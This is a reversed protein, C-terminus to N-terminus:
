QCVWGTIDPRTDHCPAVAPPADLSYYVKFDEGSRGNFGIVQIPDRPETDGPAMRYNMSVAAPAYMSRGPVDMSAFTANRVVSRKAARALESDSAYGAAVAVGIQNRFYGNEIVVSGDGRGPELRAQNPYFPSAVGVRLGQIDVDRVVVSKAAYNSFWLGVPADLDSTLVSKDGRVTLRDVILSDTPTATVGHRSPHWVRFDTVEGNWGWVAGAQIAGYAENNTFELVSTSTTDLMVTESEVTPDAGKFAPIRVSGLGGAALGFGVADANAGVNNRIYNHPGRFWMGAGEGGPDATPGGYGSRPAFDGSGEIRLAFNHDFVNFAETGDETAIGAGGTNYVVNDRVLGYHSNHVTVGWKPAEDVANGVLTFQYGNEPTTEPGFNHHFHIAYRGIQNEGVRIVHGDGDFLTNDLPGMKTRGMGRVAVYRIDINARAMFITHGRTGEPNESRIVVNRTLNGAHPLFELAGDPTRAGPHDYELASELTVQNGAVSAIRLKEDRSVFGQRRERERLQRTDPLVVEDGAAWGTPEVDFLLTSQGALPEAILRLFTPLKVAGHMRVTGLGQIGTGIQAPDLDGDTAQDTIIIEATADPAVPEAETGIELIGDDMVTLNVFRMRTSTDTKFSLRGDVEICDLRVDSAADYVVADDTRILVKDDAGPVRNPSWTEPDSWAGSTASTVSPNTCFYPVGQPVGSLPPTHTPADQGAVPQAVCFLGLTAILLGVVNPTIKAFV